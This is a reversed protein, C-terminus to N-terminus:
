EPFSYGTPRDGQTNKNLQDLNYPYQGDPNVLNCKHKDCLERLKDKAYNKSCDETPECYHSGHWKQVFGYDNATNIITAELNPTEELVEESCLCQARNKNIYQNTAKVADISTQNNNTMQSDYRTAQKRNHKELQAESIDPVSEKFNDLSDRTVTKSLHDDIAEQVQEAPLGSMESAPKSLAAAAEQKAANKSNNLTQYKEEIDINDQKQAERLKGFVDEYKKMKDQYNMLRIKLADISDKLILIENHITNRDPCTNFCIKGKKQNNRIHEENIFFESTQSYRNSYKTSTITLTLIIITLILLFLSIIIFCKM